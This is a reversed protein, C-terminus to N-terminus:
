AASSLLGFYASAGLAVFLIIVAPLVCVFFARWTSIGYVSRIVRIVVVLTFVGYALSILVGLLPILSLIIIPIQIISIAFSISAITAWYRLFGSDGGLLTAFFHTIVTLFSFVWVFLVGAVFGAGAGIGGLVSAAPGDLSAVTGLILGFMAGMLGVILSLITTLIFGNKVVGPDNANALIADNKLALARFGNALYTGFGM